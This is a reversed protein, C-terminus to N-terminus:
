FSLCFFLGIEMGQGEAPTETTTTTTTASADKKEKAERKSYVIYGQLFMLYKENCSEQRTSQEPSPLTMCKALRPLSNIWTQTM